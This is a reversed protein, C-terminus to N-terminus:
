KLFLRQHQSILFVDKSDPEHKKVFRHLQMYLDFQDPTMQHFDKGFLLKVSQDIDYSSYHITQRACGARRLERGGISKLEDSFKEKSKKFLRGM